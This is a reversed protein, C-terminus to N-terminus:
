TTASKNNVGTFVGLGKENAVELTCEARIQGATSDGRTGMLRSRLPRFWAIRILSRQLFWIRGTIDTANASASASNASQPSYRNLQVPLVGFDSDYVDIGVVIKKESALINRTNSTTLQALQRKYTGKMVLLDTKGGNDWIQNLFANIDNANFVGAHTADGALGTYNAGTYKNTTIFDELTKMQRAVNLSGTTQTGAAMFTAEINRLTEKTVLEMQYTLADGFGAPNEERQSETVAFDDGFIQCQNTERVPAARSGIQFDAGEVLGVTSVAKLVDKQWQHITSKSKVSGLMVTLPTESPDINAIFDVLDERNSSLHAYSDYLITGVNGIPTAM